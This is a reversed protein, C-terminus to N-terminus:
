KKKFLSWLTKTKKKAETPTAPTDCSALKVEAEALATAYVGDETDNESLVRLIDIAKTFNDKAKDTNGYKLHIDGSKVHSQASGYLRSIRASHDTVTAEGDAEEAEETEIFFIEANLSALASSLPIANARSRYEELFMDARSLYSQAMAESKDRKALAALRKLILVNVALYNVNMQDIDATVLSLAKTYQREAGSLDKTSELYAGLRAYLSYSPNLSPISDLMGLIELYYSKATEFDSESTSYALLFSYYDLTHRTLSSSKRDKSISNFILSVKKYYEWAKESDKMLVCIGAYKLICLYHQEFASVKDSMVNVDNEYKNPFALTKETLLLASGIHEAAKEYEPTEGDCNKSLYEGLAMHARVLFCLNEKTEASRVLDEAKELACLLYKKKTETKKANKACYDYIEYLAKQRITEDIDSTEYFAILGSMIEDWLEYDNIIQCLLLAVNIHSKYLDIYVDKLKKYITKPSLFAEKCIEAAKLRWEIAKRQDLAVGQGNEYLLAMKAAAQHSGGEAASRIIEVGKTKNQEVCTGTLYALGILYDHEPDGLKARLSVGSLKHLLDSYLQKVGYSPIYYPLGEFKSHIAMGTPVLEYAIIPKGLRRALPYETTVIYNDCINGNQDYTKKIINPTVAMVFVSSDKIADSISNNYDEGPTLFEDYWIAVDRFVEKRHILEMLDQAYARDIKRYSLFITTDFEKEISKKIDKDLLISSLFSTLKSGYAIATGDNVVPNLYQISGCVSEFQADLGEELMLPLIPINKRLAFNLESLRARSPETLFKKTVALVFLKMHELDALFREEDYDAYPETDFWVTIDPISNSNKLIDDSIRKFYDEYDDPHACFWVNSNGRGYNLLHPKCDLKAM